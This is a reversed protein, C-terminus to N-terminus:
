FQFNAQRPPPIIAKLGRISVAATWRAKEPRLILKHGSVLTYSAEPDRGFALVDLLAKRESSGPPFTTALRIMRSRLKSM